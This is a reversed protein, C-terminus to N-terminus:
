KRIVPGANLEVGVVLKDDELDSYDICNSQGSYTQSKETFTHDFAWTKNQNKSSNFLILKGATHCSWNFPDDNHCRLFLGLPAFENFELNNKVYISWQMGMCWFRDGYALSRNLALLKSVNALEFKFSASPRSTDVKEIKQKLEEKSKDLEENRSFIEANGKTEFNYLNHLLSFFLSPLTLFSSETLKSLHHDFTM